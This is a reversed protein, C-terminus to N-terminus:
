NYPLVGANAQHFKHFGRWEGTRSKLGHGGIYSACTKVVRGRRQTRSMSIDIISAASLVGYNLPFYYKIFSNPEGLALWRLGVNV